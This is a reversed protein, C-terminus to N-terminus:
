NLFPTTAVTLSTNDNTGTGLCPVEQNGVIFTPATVAAFEWEIVTINFSFTGLENVLSLVALKINKAIEDRPLIASDQTDRSIM